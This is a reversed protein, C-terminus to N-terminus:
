ADNRGWNVKNWLREHIYYLITNSIMQTIGIIGAVAFNGILIYAILFTAGSGTIRWSITKVLSRRTTEIM